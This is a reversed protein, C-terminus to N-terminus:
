RAVLQMDDACTGVIMRNEDWSWVESTNEPEDESYFPLSSWDLSYFEHSKIANYLDDLTPYANQADVIEWFGYRKVLAPNYDIGSHSLRWNDFYSRLTEDESWVAADGLIYDTHGDRDSISITGEKEEETLYKGHGETGIFTYKM